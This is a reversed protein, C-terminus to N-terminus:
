PVPSKFLEFVRSGISRSFNTCFVVLFFSNPCNERKAFSAYKTNLSWHTFTVIKKPILNTIKTCNVNCLRFIKPVSAWDIARCNTVFNFFSSPFIKPFIVLCQSSKKRNQFSREVSDLCRSISSVAKLLFLFTQRFIASSYYKIYYFFFLAM